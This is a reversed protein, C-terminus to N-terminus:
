FIWYNLATDLVGKSLGSYNKLSITTIYHYKKPILFLIYVFSDKCYIKFFTNNNESLNKLYFLNKTNYKFKLEVFKDYLDIIRCDVFNKDTFLRKDINLLPIICKTSREM